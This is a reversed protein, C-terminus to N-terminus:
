YLLMIDEPSIGLYDPAPSKDRNKPIRWWVPESDDAAGEYRFKIIREFPEEIEEVVRIRRANVVCEKEFYHARIGIYKVNDRVAEETTLSINWDQVYVEHESVKIAAAINKCGTLRAGAATGPNKFMEKTNGSGAMCGNHMIFLKKSVKYAEDRSHTVLIVDRDLAEIISRTELVIKERLFADLASFPEDLLIVEPESVLMRALATRQQQGGSLQHPLHKEFGELRFREITELTKRRKVTRDKEKELGCLINDFVTMNPFLAYNQFLMGVNRKQPPLNIKKESDYVIRGNIKIYGEDPTEVGAMCRLTMSKGCGSAGLIACIENESNLEANLLFNDLEKRIRLEISM